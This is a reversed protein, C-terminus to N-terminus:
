LSELNKKSHLIITRPDEAVKALSDELVRRESPLNHTKKSSRMKPKLETLISDRNRPKPLPLRKQLKARIAGSYILKSYKCKKKSKKKASSGHPYLLTRPHAKQTPIDDSYIIIFQFNGM